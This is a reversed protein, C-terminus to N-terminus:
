TLCKLILTSLMHMIDNYMNIYYMSCTTLLLIDSEKCERLSPELWTLSPRWLLILYPLFTLKSISIHSDGLCYITHVIDWCDMYHATTLMCCMLSIHLGTGLIQGWRPLYDRYLLKIVDKLRLQLLQTSAPQSQDQVKYLMVFTNSYVQFSFLVETVIYM